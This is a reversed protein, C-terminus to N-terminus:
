VVSIAAQKAAAALLKGVDALAVGLVRAVRKTRRRSVAEANQLELALESLDAASAGAVGLKHLAVPDGSVADEIHQALEEIGVITLPKAADAAITLLLKAMPDDEDAARDRIAESVITGAQETLLGAVSGLLASYDKARPM